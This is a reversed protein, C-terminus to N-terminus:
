HGGAREAHKIREWNALVEASDKVDTTGYVHPHRRILKETIRQLSEEVGPRGMKVLIDGIFASQLLLDGLESALEAHLADLREADSASLPPLPAGSASARSNFHSHHPHHAITQGKTPTRARDEAEPANPDAKSMGDRERLEDELALIADIVHCVEGAEELVYQRLSALTQERDWPCGQPGNLDAMLMLLDAFRSAAQEIQASRGVVAAEWRARIESPIM